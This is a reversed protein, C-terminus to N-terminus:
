WKRKLDLSGSKEMKMKRDILDIEDRLSYLSKQINDYKRSLRHLPTKNENLYLYNGSMGLNKRANGDLPPVKVLTFKEEEKYVRYIDNTLKAVYTTNKYVLDALTVFLKKRGENDNASLFYIVCNKYPELAEFLNFDTIIM